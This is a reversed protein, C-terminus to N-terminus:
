VTKFSGVNNEKSRNVKSYLNSLSFWLGTLAREGASWLLSCFIYNLWYSAEFKQWDQWPFLNRVRERFTFFYYYVALGWGMNGFIYPKKCCVGGGGMCSRYLFSQLAWQMTCGNKPHPTINRHYIVVALLITHCNNQLVEREVFCPFVIILVSTSQMKAGGLLSFLSASTNTRKEWSEQM